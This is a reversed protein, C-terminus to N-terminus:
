LTSFMKAIQFKLDLILSHINKSLFFLSLSYLVYIFLPFDCFLTFFEPSSRIMNLLFDKLLFWHSLIFDFIIYLYCILNFYLPVYVFFYVVFFWNNNKMNHSLFNYDKNLGEHTCNLKFTTKTRRKTM